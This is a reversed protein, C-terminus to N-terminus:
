SCSSKFVAGTAAFWNQAEGARVGSQPPTSLSKLRYVTLRSVGNYTAVLASGAMSEPLLLEEPQVVVVECKTELPYLPNLTTVHPLIQEYWFWKARGRRSFSLRLKDMSLTWGAQTKELTSVQTAHENKGAECQCTAIFQDSPVRGTTIDSALVWNEGDYYESQICSNVPDLVRPLETVSAAQWVDWVAAMDIFVGASDITQTLTHVGNLGGKVVNFAVKWTFDADTIVTLGVGRTFGFDFGADQRIITTVPDQTIPLFAMPYEITYEYVFNGAPIAQEILFHCKKYLRLDQTQFASWGLFLNILRLSCFRDWVPPLDNKELGPSKVQELGLGSGCSDAFQHM